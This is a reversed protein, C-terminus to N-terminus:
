TKAELGPVGALEPKADPTKGAGVVLRGIKEATRTLVEASATLLINEFFKSPPFHRWDGTIARETARRYNEAKAFTRGIITVFQMGSREALVARCDLGAHCEFGIMRGAERAKEFAQGCYEACKPSFEGTPNLNRCISNNNSVFVERSDTDVVAIAVGSEAAVRDVANKDILESIEIM